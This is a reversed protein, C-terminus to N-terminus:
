HGAQPNALAEVYGLAKGAVPHDTSVKGTHLLGTLVVGTVGPSKERSWSGDDAQSRTLYAIARDVTRDWTEPAPGAKGAPEATGATSLVLLAGAVALLTTVLSRRPKM